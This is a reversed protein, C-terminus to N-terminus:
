TEADKLHLLRLHGDILQGGDVPMCCLPPPHQSSSAQARASARVCVCVCVCVHACMHGRMCPSLLPVMMMMRMLDEQRM